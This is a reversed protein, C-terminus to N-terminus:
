PSSGRSGRTELEIRIRDEQFGISKLGVPLEGAQIPFLKELSKDIDVSLTNLDAQLGSVDVKTGTIRPGGSKLELFSDLEETLVRSLKGELSRLMSQYFGTVAKSLLREIWDWLGLEIKHKGRIQAEVELQTTEGPRAELRVWLTAVGNQISAGRANSLVGFFGHSRVRVGLWGTRSDPRPGMTFPELSDIRVRGKRAGLAPISYAFSQDKGIWREAEILGLVFDQLLAESIEIGHVGDELKPPSGLDKGIVAQSALWRVKLGYPGLKRARAPPNAAKTLLFGVRIEIPHGEFLELSSELFKALRPDGAFLASERLRELIERTSKASEIRLSCELRIQNPDTGPFFLKPSKLSVGAPLAQPYLTEVVKATYAGLHRNLGELGSGARYDRTRWSPRTALHRNSAQTSLLFGELDEALSSEQPSVQTVSRILDGAALLYGSAEVSNRLKFGLQKGLEASRDLDPFPFVFSNEPERMWSAHDYIPDAQIEGSAPDKWHYSTRGEADIRLISAGQGRRPDSRGLTYQVNSDYVYIDTYALQEERAPVEVMQYALVAHGFFVEPRPDFMCLIPLEGAELMGRVQSVAERNVRPAAKEGTSVRRALHGLLESAQFQVYHLYHTTTLFRYLAQGARARPDEWGVPPEPNLGAQFRAAKAMWSEASGGGGVSSSLQYLGSFGRVPFPRSSPDGSELSRALEEVDVGLPSAEDPRFDGARHFLRSLYAMTYCNGAMSQVRIAGSLNRFAFNDVGIRFPRAPAIVRPSSPPLPESSTRKKPPSGEPDEKETEPLVRPSPSSSSSVPLKGTLADTIKQAVAEDHQLKARVVTRVAGLGLAGAGSFPSVFGQIDGGRVSAIGMGLPVGLLLLGRLIGVSGM